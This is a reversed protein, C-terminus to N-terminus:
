PERFYGYPKANQIFRRVERLDRTRRTEPLVKIVDRYYRGGPAARGDLIAIVCTDTETRIAREPEPSLNAM